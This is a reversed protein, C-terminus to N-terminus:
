QFLSLIEGATGSLIGRAEVLGSHQVTATELAIADRNADLGPGDWFSLWCRYLDWRWAEYTIAQGAGGVTDLLYISMTRIYSPAGKRWERGQLYWNWLSRSFTLPRQLRIVSSRERRPFTHVGPFGGEKLTFIDLEASLGRVQRFGAVTEKGVFGDGDIQVVFQLGTLQRLDLVDLKEIVQNPLDLIPV